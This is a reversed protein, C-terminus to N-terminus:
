KATASLVGSIMMMMNKTAMDWESEFGEERDQRRAIVNTDGLEGDDLHSGWDAKAKSKTKEKSIAKRESAFGKSSSTIAKNVIGYRATESVLQDDHTLAICVMSYPIDLVANWRGRVFYFTEMTYRSEDFSRAQWWDRFYSLTPGFLMTPNGKGDPQTQEYSSSSTIDYVGYKTSGFCGYKPYSMMMKVRQRVHSPPYYCDPSYHLIMHTNPPLYKTCLNIKKAISLFSKPDSMDCRIYKISLDNGDILPGIKEEDPSDDAIIWTLKDRPYDITYYSWQMLQFLDPQSRVCTILAVHPLKDDTIVKVEEPIELQACLVGTKEDTFETLKPRDLAVPPCLDGNEAGGTLQEHYTIFRKRVDSFGDDQLVREPTTIFVRLKSHINQCYWQDIHLSRKAEDDGNKAAKLAAFGEKLIKSYAQSHVAYAHTLLCSVRKWVTSSDTDPDEVVSQVNGGLYLMDWNEPPNPLVFRPLIIKADDEMIIVGGKKQMQANKICKLHSEFKGLNPFEKNEVASFVVLGFHKKRAQRKMKVMRDKRHKLHICVVQDINMGESKKMSM